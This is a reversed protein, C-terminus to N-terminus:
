LWIFFTSNLLFFLELDFLINQIQILRLNKKQDYFIIIKTKKIQMFSSIM